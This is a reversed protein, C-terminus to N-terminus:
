PTAGLKRLLEVTAAATTGAGNSSQQAAPPLARQSAASAIALPTLGKKNKVDLAAGRAVLWEIVRNFGRAAAAHLATDGSASTANVDLGLDVAAAIAGLTREEVERRDVALFTPAKRDPGDAMTALLINTGDKRVFRTDAGSAALTRMFTVDSFKAALWLPTAGVWSPHLAWDQSNRRNPTAKQIPANVDAGKALLRKTLPLDGRLIAVHLATYGAGAANPDAALDLLADAAASQGSLAAIVLASAGTPATDNVGAGAAVLLKVSAADGARAALLLPTYGGQDEEQFDTYDGTLRRLGDQGANVLMRRVSSRAGVDAGAEVLVRTVDAHGESAAWMLATQQRGAERANVEAGRAILLRVTELSGTRAATMLPTEGNLLAANPNAGARLLREVMAARGESCALWLPTAGFDNAIDVRAGARLLADVADARDWYVAWHLATAGDPQTAHVDARQKLLDQVQTWNQAKASEVLRLDPGAAALATTIVAVAVVAATVSAIVATSCAHFRAAVRTAHRTSLLPLRAKM